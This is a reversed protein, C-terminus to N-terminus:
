NEETTKTDKFPKFLVAVRMGPLLPPKGDLFVDVKVIEVDQRERPGRLGLVPIAIRPAVRMVRGTYDKGDFADSRIIVVQGKRIRSIDREEVEATVELKALDGIVAAPELSAPNSIEGAKINLQLLTGSATARIRTKEYAIEALRLDARAIALGSDLRTSAPRDSRSEIEALIQRKVAIDALVQEINEREAELSADDVVEGAHRMLLLNDFTTRVFHLQREAEAVDDTAARWELVAKDKTQEESREALRVQVEARAASLRTFAQEDDLLAIIDGHVVDDNVSVLLKRILGAAEPRVRIEGAQPRVRGSAAAVWIESLTAPLTEPRDVPKSETQKAILQEILGNGAPSAYAVM